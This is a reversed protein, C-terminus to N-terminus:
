GNGLGVAAGVGLAVVYVKLAVGIAALTVGIKVM